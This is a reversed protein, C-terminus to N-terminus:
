EAPASASGRAPRRRRRKWRRRKRWRVGAVRFCCGVLLVPWQFPPYLSLATVQVKAHDTWSRATSIYGRARTAPVHSRPADRATPDAHPPRATRSSTPMSSFCTGTRETSAPPPGVGDAVTGQGHKRAYTSETPGAHRRCPFPSDLSRLRAQGKVPTRREADGGRTPTHTHHPALKKTKQKPSSSFLTAAPYYTVAGTLLPASWREAPEEEEQTAQAPPSCCAGSRCGALWAM